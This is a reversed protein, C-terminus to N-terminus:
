GWVGAEHACPNTVLNMGYEVSGGSLLSNMVKTATKYGGTFLSLPFPEQPEGDRLNQCKQLKYDEHKLLSYIYLSSNWIHKLGHSTSERTGKSQERGVKPTCQWVWDGRGLRLGTYRWWYGWDEQRKDTFCSFSGQPHFHLLPFFAVVEQLHWLLTERLIKHFLLWHFLNLCM